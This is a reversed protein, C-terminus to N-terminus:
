KTKNVLGLFVIKLCHIAFEPNLDEICISFLEYFVVCVTIDHTWGSSKPSKM